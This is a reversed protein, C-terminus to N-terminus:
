MTKGTCLKVHIWIRMKESTPDPDPKKFDPDQDPDTGFDDLDAVSIKVTVTHPLFLM